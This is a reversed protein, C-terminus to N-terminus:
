ALPVFVNTSVQYYLSVGVGGIVLGSVGEILTTVSDFQAFGDYTGSNVIAIDSVSLQSSAYSLTLWPTSKNRAQALTNSNNGVGFDNTASNSVYVTLIGGAENPGISPLGSRFQTTLYLSYPSEGTWWKFGAYLLQSNATPVYNTLDVVDSQSFNLNTASGTKITTPITSKDLANNTIKAGTFAVTPNLKLSYTASASDTIMGRIDPEVDVAGSLDIAATTYNKHVCGYSKVTQGALNGKIHSPTPVDWISLIETVKANAAGLAHFGNVNTSAGQMRAKIYKIEASTNGNLWITAPDTLNGFTGGAFTLALTKTTVANPQFMAVAKKGRIGGGLFKIPMMPENISMLLTGTATSALSYFSNSDGPEITTEFKSNSPFTPASWLPDGRDEDFIGTFILRAGNGIRNGGTAYSVNRWGSKTYGAQASDVGTTQNVWFAPAVTEAGHVLEDWEGVERCIVASKANNTTLYNKVANSTGRPCIYIQGLSDQFLFDLYTDATRGTKLNVRAITKWTGADGTLSAHINIYDYSGPGVYDSCLLLGSSTKICGGGARATDSLQDQSVFVREFVSGSRNFRWVGLDADLSTPKSCDSQGYIYQDTFILDILRNRQAGSYVVFGPIAANKIYLMKMGSIASWNASFDAILVGSDDNSDGTCIVIKGTYPDQYISHCHKTVQIGGPNMDWLVNWTQGDNNSYWVYLEAIGATYEVRYEAFFVYGSNGNITANCISSKGLPGRDARHVTGTWGPRHVYNSGWTAGGDTSRWVYCLNGSGKVFFLLTGNNTIHLSQPTTLGLATAGPLNTISAVLTTKSTPNNKPWRVLDAGYTNGYIYASDEAWVKALCDDVPMLRPLRTM